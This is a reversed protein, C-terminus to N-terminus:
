ENWKEEDEEKPGAREILNRLFLHLCVTVDDRKSKLEDGHLNEERRKRENFLRFINNKMTCM